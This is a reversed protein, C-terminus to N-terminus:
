LAADAAALGGMAAARHQAHTLLPADIADRGEGGAAEGDLAVAAADACSGGGEGTGGEAAARNGEEKLAGTLAVGAAM